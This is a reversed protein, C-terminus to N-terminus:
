PQQLFNLAREIIAPFDRFSHCGGEQLEIFAGKYFSLSKTYDLVEDGSQLFVAFRKPNVVISQDMRLLDTLMEPRLEFHHDNYPNYHPGTLDQFYEQPHVCPNLLVAKFDFKEALLTAFFGGMSSGFVGIPEPSQARLDTFFAELDQRAEAPTDSFDPAIFSFGERGQLYSRLQNAKLAQSGSLFGHLYVIRM